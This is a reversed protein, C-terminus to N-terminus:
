SQIPGSPCLVPDPKGGPQGCSAAIAELRERSLIQPRRYPRREHVPASSPATEINHDPM